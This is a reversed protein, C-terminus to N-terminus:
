TCIIDQYMETSSFGVFSEVVCGSSHRFNFFVIIILTPSSTSCRFSEYTTSLLAFHDWQKLFSEPTELLVSHLGERHRGM